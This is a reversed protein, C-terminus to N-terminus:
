KYHLHKGFGLKSEDPKVKLHESKEVRIEM